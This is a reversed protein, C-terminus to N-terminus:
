AVREHRGRVTSRPRRRNPLGGRASSIMTVACRASCGARSRESSSTASIARVRRLVRCTEARPARSLLRRLHARGSTASDAGRSSRHGIAGRRCRSRGRGPRRPGPETARAPRSRGAVRFAALGPAERTSASWPSYTATSTSCSPASTRGVTVAAPRTGHQQLRVAGTRARRGSGTANTARPPHSRRSRGARAAAGAGPARSRTRSSATRAGSPGRVQQAGLRDDDVPARRPEDLVVVAPLLRRGQGARAGRRSAASQAVRAESIHVPM